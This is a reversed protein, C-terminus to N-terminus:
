RSLINLIGLTKTRDCSHLPSSVYSFSEAVTMCMKLRGLFRNSTGHVSQISINRHISWQCRAPFPAPFCAAMGLVNEVKLEFYVIAIILTTALCPFHTITHIRLFVIPLFYAIGLVRSRHFALACPM